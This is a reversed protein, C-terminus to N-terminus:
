WVKISKNRSAIRRAGQRAIKNHCLNCQFNGSCGKFNFMDRLTKTATLKASMEILNWKECEISCHQLLFLGECLGEDICGPFFAM